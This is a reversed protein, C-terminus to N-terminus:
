KMRMETSASYKTKPLKLNDINDYFSNIYRTMERRNKASTMKCDKITKIIIEKKNYFIELTEPTQIIDEEFGLYIRDTKSTLGLESDLKVYSAKVLGSFDFDYPIIILKSNSQVLKVNHVRGTSWDSNGIMYQFLSATLLEEENFNERPLNYEVKVKKANIRARLEATDEILFGWQIKENGTVVDKYTIKLFQVRFSKDSIQNYIKYALYEKVLLEKAEKKNMVCHNVLKMDDFKALGAAKLDDKKFNLKLPAMAECRTRRYKGRLKVKINWSQANGNKDLYSFTTPHKDTNRRNGFVANMDMEMTVELEEQYSLEDFISKTVNSPTAFSYNTFVVILLIATILKQIHNYNYNKM